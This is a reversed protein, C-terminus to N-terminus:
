SSEVALRAAEQPIDELELEVVTKYIDLERTMM